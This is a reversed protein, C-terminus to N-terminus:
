RAWWWAVRPTPRGVLRGGVRVPVGAQGPVDVVALSEAPGLFTVGQRDLHVAGADFRFDLYRQARARHQDPGVRGPHDLIV